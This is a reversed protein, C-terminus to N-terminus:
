AVWAGSEWVEVTNLTAPQLPAEWEGSGEVTWVVQRATWRDRCYAEIRQWIMAADLTAAAASLGEPSAPYAAPIAEVEKLTVAM